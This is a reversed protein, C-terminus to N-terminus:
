WKGTLIPNANVERKETPKLKVKVKPKRPNRYPKPKVLKKPLLIEIGEKEKTCFVSIWETEGSAWKVKYKYGSRDLIKGTMPKTHDIVQWKEYAM